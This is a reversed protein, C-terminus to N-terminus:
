CANRCCLQLMSVSVFEESVTASVTQRERYSLGRRVYSARDADALM